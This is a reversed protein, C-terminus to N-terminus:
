KSSTYQILVEHNEAMLSLKGNEYLYYWEFPSDEIKYIKKDINKEVLILKQIRSNKRLYIGNDSMRVWEFNGTEFMGKIPELRWTGVVEIETLSELSKKSEYIKELQESIPIRQSSKKLLSVLEAYRHEQQFLSYNYFTLAISELEYAPYTGGFSMIIGGVEACKEIIPWFAVGATSVNNHSLNLVPVINSTKYVKNGHIEFMLATRIMNSFSISDYEIQTKAALLVEQDIIELEKWYANIKEANDLNSIEEKYTELPIQASLKGCSITIFLVFILVRQM